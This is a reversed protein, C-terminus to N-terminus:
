RKYLVWDSAPYQQEIALHSAARRPEAEVAAVMAADQEPTTKKPRGTRPRTKLGEYGEERFRKRWRYVSARSM